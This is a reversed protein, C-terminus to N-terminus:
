SNTSADQKKREELGFASFAGKGSSIPLPFVFRTRWDLVGDFASEGAWRSPCAFWAVSTAGAFSVRVASVGGVLRGLRVASREDM